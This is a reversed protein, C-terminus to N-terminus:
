QRLVKRASIVFAKKKEKLLGINLPHQNIYILLKDVQEREGSRVLHKQSQVALCHWSCLMIAKHKM